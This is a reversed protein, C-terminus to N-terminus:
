SVKKLVRKEIKDVNAALTYINITNRRLFEENAKYLFKIAEREESKRLM